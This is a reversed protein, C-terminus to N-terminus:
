HENLEDVEAGVDVLFDHLGGAATEFHGTRASQLSLEAQLSSVRDQEWAEPVERQVRQTWEALQGLRRAAEASIEDASLQLYKAVAPDAWAEAAARAEPHEKAYRAIALSVASRSQERIEAHAETQNM